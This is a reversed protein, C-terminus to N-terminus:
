EVEATSELVRGIADAVRQPNTMTETACRIPLPLPLGRRIRLRGNTLDVSRLQTRPVFQHNLTKSRHVCLGSEFLTYARRRGGAISQGIMAGGFGPLPNVVPDLALGVIFCVCGFGFQLGYLLRRYRTDPHSTWEVLVSEREHLSAVHRNMTVFCFVTGALALVLYELLWVTMWTEYGRIGVLVLLPIVFVPVLVIAIPFLYLRTRVLLTAPATWTYNRLAVLLGVCGGAATPWLTVYGSGLVLATAGLTLLGVYSGAVISFFAASPQRFSM